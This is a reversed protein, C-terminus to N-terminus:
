RLARSLASDPSIPLIGRRMRSRSVRCGAPSIACRSASTTTAHTLHSHRSSHACISKHSAELWASGTKYGMAGRCVECPAIHRVPAGTAVIAPPPGAAKPHFPLLRPLYAYYAALDRIDFIGRVRLKKDILICRLGFGRDGAGGCTRHTMPPRASLARLRIKMPWM